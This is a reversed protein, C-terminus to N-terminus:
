LVLSDGTGGDKILVAVETTEDGKFVDGKICEPMFSGIGLTRTIHDCCTLCIGNLHWIAEFDVGFGRM